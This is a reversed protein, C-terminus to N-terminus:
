EGNMLRCTTIAINDKWSFKRTPPLDKLSPALLCSLRWDPTPEPMYHDLFWELRASTVISAEYNQRYSGFEYKDKPVFKPHCTVPFCLVQAVIGSISEDRAM